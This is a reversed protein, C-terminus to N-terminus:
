RRFSAVGQQLPLDGPQGPVLQVNSTGPSQKTRYCVIWLNGQCAPDEFPMRSLTNDGYKCVPNDLNSTVFVPMGAKALDRLNFTYHSRVDSKAPKEM